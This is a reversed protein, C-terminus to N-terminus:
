WSLPVFSYIQQRVPTHELATGPENPNRIVDDQKQAYTIKAYYENIQDAFGRPITYIGNHAFEWWKSQDTDYKQYTLKVKQGPSRQNLFRGKVMQCDYEKQAEIKRKLASKESGQTIQKESIELEKKDYERNNMSKLEARRAEILTKTEELEKRALDMETQLSELQVEQAVSDSPQEVAVSMPEEKKPKINKPRAM